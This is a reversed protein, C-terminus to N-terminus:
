TKGAVIVAPLEEVRVAVQLGAAFEYTQVLVGAVQELLEALQETAGTPLAIKETAPTLLAPVPLGAEAVNLTVYLTGCGVHVSLADGVVTVAPPEDM